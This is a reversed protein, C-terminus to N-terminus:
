SWRGAGCTPSAAQPPPRESRPTPFPSASGEVVGEGLFSAAGGDADTAHGREITM